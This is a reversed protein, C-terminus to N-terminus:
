GGCGGGGGCGSGGGGCSSSGGAWGSSGDYGSSGKSIEAEAAFAPDMAYLSAGGFLAVGLAAGGAGYTAYSPSQRPSLYQHSARLQSLGRTAARTRVSAGAAVLVITVAIAVVLSLLLFGVPKGNDIGDILRAIGLLVLAGAPIAWLRATRRQESTTALGNRELDARLDGLASVVWGDSIIERARIQRGAAHYVASDLATAGAPLQGTQVLIQGQGSGIAEAARLAGMSTYVALRDRGNLYAVKEPALREVDLRSDGNFLSRRHVTAAVAVVVIAALYLVLFTPGPIGWTDATM